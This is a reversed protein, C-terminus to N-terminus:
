VNFGSAHQKLNVSLTLVFHSVRLVAIRVPIYQDNDANSKKALYEYVRDIMIGRLLDFLRIVHASGKTEGTKYLYLLFSSVM